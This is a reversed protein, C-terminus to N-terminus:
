CCVLFQQVIHSCCRSANQHIRRARLLSPLLVLLQQLSLLQGSSFSCVQCHGASHKHDDQKYCVSHLNRRFSNQDKTM